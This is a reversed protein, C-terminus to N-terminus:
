ITANQRNREGVEGLFSFTGLLEMSYIFNKTKKKFFPDYKFLLNLLRRDFIVSSIKGERVLLHFLM